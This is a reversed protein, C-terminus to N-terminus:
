IDQVVNDTGNIVNDVGNVVNFTVKESANQPSLGLQLLLGLM